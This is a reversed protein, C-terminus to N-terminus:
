NIRRWVDWLRELESCIQDKTGSGNDRELILFAASTEGLAREALALTEASVETMHSDVLWGGIDDHGAVHLGAVRDKNLRALFAGPDYSFNKCNIELNNVDLLLGIGLEQIASILYLEDEMVQGAWLNAAITVNELFFPKRAQAIFADVNRQIVNVAERSPLPLVFNDIELTGSRRFSLHDSCCCAGIDDVVQSLSRLYEMPLPEPSAVSLTVSHAMSPIDSCFTRTASRFGENLLLEDPMFEVCNLMPKIDGWWPIFEPRFSLGVGKMQLTERSMDSLQRLM